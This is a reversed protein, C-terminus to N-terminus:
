HQITEPGFFVCDIGDIEAIEAVNELARPSEIQAVIWTNENAAVTYDNAPYAGYNNDASGMSDENEKRTFSQGAFSKELKRPRNVDQTLIGNAGAELLRGM